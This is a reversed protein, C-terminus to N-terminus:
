FGSHIRSAAAYVWEKVLDERIRKRSAEIGSPGGAVFVDGSKSISGSVWVREDGRYIGISGRLTMRYQTAVGSVDYASPVFSESLQEIRVVAHASEDIPAGVPGDVSQDTVAKASVVKYSESGSLERKLGTALDIAASFSEVSVSTVDAPIASGSQGNGQGVLHYGCSSLLLGALMTLMVIKTRTCPKASKLLPTYRESVHADSFEGYRLLRAFVTM